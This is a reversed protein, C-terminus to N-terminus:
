GLWERMRETVAAATFGFKEALIEAPASAGYHDIGLTLGDPGALARWPDTSGADVTAVPVGRPLLRDRYSPDQAWFVELCPVSVVHIKRGESELTVRAAVALHLESGTAVVSARRGQANRRSHAAQSV